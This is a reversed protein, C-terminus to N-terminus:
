SGGPELYPARVLSSSLIAAAIECSTSLETTATCSVLCGADIQATRALLVDKGFRRALLRVDAFDRAAARDFLALLKRGALEEPALTPGAATSSAPFDPPTDVALEARVGPFPEVAGHQIGEEEGCGDGLFSAEDLVGAADQAGVVALGDGPDVVVV